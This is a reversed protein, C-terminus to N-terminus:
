RLSPARLASAGPVFGKVPSSCTNAALGAEAITFTRGRLFSMYRGLSKRSLHYKLSFVHIGFREM